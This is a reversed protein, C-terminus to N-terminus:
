LFLLMFACKICDLFYEATSRSRPATGVTPKQLTTEGQGKSAHNEPDTLSSTAPNDGKEEERPAKPTDPEKVVAVEMVPNLVPTEKVKKVPQPLSSLNKKLQEVTDNTSPLEEVIVNTPQVKTQSRVPRSPRSPRAPASPEKAEKAEKAEEDLAIYDPAVKSM